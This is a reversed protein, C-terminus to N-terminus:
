TNDESDSLQDEGDVLQEEVVNDEVGSSQHQRTEPEKVIPRKADSSNQLEVRLGRSVSPFEDEDDSSDVVNEGASTDQVPIRRQRPKPKASESTLYDCPLLM